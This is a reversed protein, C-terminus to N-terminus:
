TFTQGDITLIPLGTGYSASHTQTVGNVLFTDGGPALSFTKGGATVQGGPTLTTSSAQPTALAQTVGNIIANSGGSALSLTTGAATVQGGPTLTTGAGLVFASNSNATFVKDGV